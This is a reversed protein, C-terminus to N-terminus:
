WRTMPPSLLTIQHASHHAPGSPQFTYDPTIHHDDLVVVVGCTIITVVYCFILYLLIYPLAPVIYTIPTCHLYM